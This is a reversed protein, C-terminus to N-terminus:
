VGFRGNYYSHISNILNDIDSRLYLNPNKSTVITGLTSSSTSQYYQNSQGSIYALYKTGVLVPVVGSSRTMSFGANPGAFEAVGIHLASSILENISGGTLNAYNATTPVTLGDAILAGCGITGDATTYYAAHGAPASAFWGSGQSTWAGTTTDVTIQASGGGFVGVGRIIISTGSKYAFGAGTTNVGGGNMTNVCNGRKAYSIPWPLSGAAATLVTVPTSADAPFTFTKLIVASSALADSLNNNTSWTYLLPPSVSTDVYFINLGQYTSGTPDGYDVDTYTRLVTGTSNDVLTIYKSAAAQNADPLQYYYSTGPVPIVTNGSPFKKVFGTLYAPLVKAFPLTGGAGFFQSFNSM